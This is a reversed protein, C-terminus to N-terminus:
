RAELVFVQKTEEDTEEDIFTFTIMDSNGSVEWTYTGDSWTSANTNDLSNVIHEVAEVANINM